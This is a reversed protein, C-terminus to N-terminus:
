PLLLARDGAMRKLGRDFTVLTLDAVEAFAALYADTWSGTRSNHRLTLERFPYGLAAPRPESEFSIRDDEMLSDYARWADKQNKAEDRMAAPLTSLRLFGMQTFRCFRVPDDVQSLWEAAAFHHIHGQFALALWVNVDPFYSNM